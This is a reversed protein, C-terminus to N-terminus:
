LRRHVFLFFPQHTICYLGEGGLTELKILLNYPTPRTFDDPTLCLLIVFPSPNPKPRDIIRLPMFRETNEM